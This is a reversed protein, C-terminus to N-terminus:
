GYIAVNFGLYRLAKIIRGNFPPVGDHNIWGYLELTCNRGWHHLKYKSTYICDYLRQVFNGSGFSLYLFTNRIDEIRNDKKFAAIHKELGGKTFRLMEVFAACGQLMDAVADMDVTRINEEESFLTQLAAIRRIRDEDVHVAPAAFWDSIHQRINARLDDDSRLPHTELDEDTTFGRAWFLFRDIEYMESLGDFGAHRGGHERYLELVVKHAPILTEYYTVRFSELYTRATSVNQSEVNVNIPEADPVGTMPDAAPRKLAAHWARFNALAEPTLVAAPPASWLEDFYAPVEDFRPDSSDLVISLERNSMMGSATLNASGVLALDGLIYFKAHFKGDTYYRVDVGRFNRAIMLADPSTAECLRVLLQIKECGAEKLIKIPDANTFFPCALQATRVANAHRYFFNLTFDRTAPRNTFIDTTM